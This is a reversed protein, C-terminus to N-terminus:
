FLNSCPPYTNPWQGSMWASSYGSERYGREAAQMIQLPTYKNPDGVIGHGWNWTMQLGNYFGNGTNSYWAGEQRHICIWGNYHTPLILLNLRYTNYRILWRHVKITHARDQYSYFSENHQVFNIVGKAHAINVRYAHIKAKTSHM